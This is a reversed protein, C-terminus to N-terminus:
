SKGLEKSDLLATQVTLNDIALIFDKISRPEIEKKMRLPTQPHKYEDMITLQKYDRFYAKFASIINSVYDPVCEQKKRKM